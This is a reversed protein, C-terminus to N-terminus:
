VGSHAASNGNGYIKIVLPSLHLNIPGEVEVTNMWRGSIEDERNYANRLIKKM